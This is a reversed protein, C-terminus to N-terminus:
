LAMHVSHDSTKLAPESQRLSDESYRTNYQSYTKMALLESLYSPGIGLLCKFVLLLVIRARIPLWWLDKLVGSIHNFKKTRTIIRAADNPILQMFNLKTDM